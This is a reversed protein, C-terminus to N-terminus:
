IGHSGANNEQESDFFDGQRKANEKVAEARERKEALLRAGDAQEESCLTFSDFGPIQFETNRAKM